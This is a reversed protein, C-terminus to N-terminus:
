SSEPCFVIQICTRISGVGGRDHSSGASFELVLDGIIKKVSVAYCGVTGGCACEPSVAVCLEGEAPFKHHAPNGSFEVKVGHFETQAIMYLCPFLERGGCCRNRAAANFFTGATTLLDTPLDVFLFPQSIILLDPLRPTDRKGAM